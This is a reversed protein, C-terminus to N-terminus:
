VVELQVVQEDVARVELHVLAAAGFRHQRRPADGGGALRHQDPQFRGGVLAVVGPFPKRSPRLCRPSRGGSSTILSPAAPNTPAMSRVWAWDSRCRQKIWRARLMRALTGVWACASTFVAYQDIKSMGSSTLGPGVASARACCCM